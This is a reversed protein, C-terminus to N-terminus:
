SGPDAGNPGGPGYALAQEFVALLRQYYRQRSFERTAQEHGAMGMRQAREPQTWLLRVKDAFDEANGPEALLGTVGDQVIEPMGGIRSTVVAKGQMLTEAAVTPFGEYCLTPLVIFRSRAYFTELEEPSVFGVFEVNDPAGAVLEPMGATDGTSKFPIDPCRRAAEVFITTGKEPSVRGVCGVYDGQRPEANLKRRRTM